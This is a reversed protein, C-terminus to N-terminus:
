GRRGLGPLSMRNARVKAATASSEDDHSDMSKLGHSASWELNPSLLRKPVSLSDIVFTSQAGLPDLGLLFFSCLVRFLRTSHGWCGLHGTRNIM